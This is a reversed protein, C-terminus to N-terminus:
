MYYKNQDYQVEADYMNEPLKAEGDLVEALAAVKLKDKEDKM